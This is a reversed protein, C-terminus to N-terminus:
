SWFPLCSRIKKKVAPPIKGEDDFLLSKALMQFDPPAKRLKSLDAQQIIKCLAKNVEEIEDQNEGNQNVYDMMARSLNPLSDAEELPLGLQQVFPTLFARARSDCSRIRFGSPRRQLGIISNVYEQFM